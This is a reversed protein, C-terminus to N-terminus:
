KATDKKTKRNGKKEQPKSPKKPPQKNPDDKDYEPQQLNESRFEWKNQHRFKKEIKVVYLYAVRLSSINLFDMETQIYRHLDGSYKLFPHRKSDKIGIKTGLTHFTNTFKLVIQIKEQRM